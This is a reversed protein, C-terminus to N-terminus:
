FPTRELHAVWGLGEKKDVGVGEFRFLGMSVPNGIGGDLRRVRWGLIHFNDRNLSKRVILALKSANISRLATPVGNAMTFCGQYDDVMQIVEPAVMMSASVVQSPSRLLKLSPLQNVQNYRRQEQKGGYVPYGPSNFRHKHFNNKYTDMLYGEEKAGRMSNVTYVM